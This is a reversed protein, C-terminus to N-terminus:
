YPKAARGARELSEDELMWAPQYGRESDDNKLAPNPKTTAVSGLSTYGRDYLCCYPLRFQRLFEWVEHYRWTLIPNVRMFPPWGKSSPEFHEMTSGHPDSRRTGLVFACMNTRDKVFEFIGEKIGLQVEVASLKYASVQERIFSNVESFQEEQSACMYLCHLEAYTGNKQCWNALAARALHMVVTADKGGNFAVAINQPGYLRFASDLTNLAKRIYTYTSAQEVLNSYLRLGDDDVHESHSEEHSNM